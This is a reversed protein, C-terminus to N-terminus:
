YSIPFIETNSGDFGTVNHEMAYDVIKKLDGNINDIIENFDAIQTDNMDEMGDAFLAGFMFEPNLFSIDITKNDDPNVFVAIECPLAPTHHHAKLWALRTSPM